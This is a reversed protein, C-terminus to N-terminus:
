KNNIIIIVQEFHPINKKLQNFKSCVEIIYYVLLIRNNSKNCFSVRLNHKKHFLKFHFFFSKNSTVYEMQHFLHSRKGINPVIQLRKRVDRM